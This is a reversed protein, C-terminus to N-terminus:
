IRKTKFFLPNRTQLFDEHKIAKYIFSRMKLGERTMNSPSKELYVRGIKKVLLYLDEKAEFKNKGIGVLSWNPHQLVVKGDDLHINFREGLVYEHGRFVSDESGDSITSPAWRVRESHGPIDLGSLLSKGGTVPYKVPDASDDTNANIKKLQEEYASYESSDSVGSAQKASRSTAM